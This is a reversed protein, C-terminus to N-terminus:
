IAYQKGGSHTIITAILRSDHIPKFLYDSAGLRLAKMIRATGIKIDDLVVIPIKTKGQIEDFLSLSNKGPLDLDMFLLGSEIRVEGDLLREASCGILRMHELHKGITDKFDRFLKPDDEILYIDM